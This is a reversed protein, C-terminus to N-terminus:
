VQAHDSHFRANLSCDDEALNGGLRGSLVTFSAVARDRMSGAVATSRNVVGVLGVRVAAKAVWAAVSDMALARAVTDVGVTFRGQIVGLNRGGERNVIGLFGVGVAVIAVARVRM